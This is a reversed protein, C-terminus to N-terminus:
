AIVWPVNRRAAVGGGGWLVVVLTTQLGLETWIFVAVLQVAVTVSEDDLGVVGVPETLKVVFEVPVNLGDEAVQVNAAPAVAPM